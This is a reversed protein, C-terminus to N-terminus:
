NGGFAQLDAICAASFQAFGPDGLDPGLPDLDLIWFMLSNPDADHGPHFPDEHPTAMPCGINVLGLIHGAEHVLTSGAVEETTVFPNTGNDVNDLFIAISGGRHGYGLIVGNPDDEDSSGPVLLVYMAATGSPLDPLFGRHEDELDQVDGLSLVPPFEAPSIADDLFVSVGGPKDCRESLRTELLDLVANTPARGAPYDVEVLLTDFNTGRVYDAAFDGPGSFRSATLASPTVSALDDAGGAPPGGGGGNGGGQVFGSGEGGGGCAALLAPVLVALFPRARRVATV